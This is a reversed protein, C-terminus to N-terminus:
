ELTITISGNGSHVKSAPGKETLIIRKSNKEGTVSLPKRSGNITVNGLTTDAQISGGAGAPLRVTVAGISTKLNFSADGGPAPALTISGNGSEAEVNGSIQELTMQGISTKANVTGKVSKITVSGNGSSANVAGAIERITVAGISTKANVEGTAKNVQISGNGTEATVAGLQDAVAIAGIGTHVDALGRLGILSVSGNGTRIKCGSADPVRIALSCGGRAGAWEKPSEAKIELTGDARRGINVKVDPLRSKAEEETTGFASITATIKVEKVTPDAIVEVSGVDTHVDIGSGAVHPAALNREETASKFAVSCGGCGVLMFALGVPIMLSILIRIAHM